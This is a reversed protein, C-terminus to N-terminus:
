KKKRIIVGLAIMLPSAIIATATSSFSFEDLYGAGSITANDVYANGTADGIYIHFEVTDVVPDHFPVLLNATIEEWQGTTTGHSQGSNGAHTAGAYFYIFVQLNFDIDQWVWLSFSAAEGPTFTGTQTQVLRGYQGNDTSNYKACYGVTMTTDNNFDGSGTETWDDPSGGSWNEFSPNILSIDSPKAGVGFTSLILLIIATGILIRRMKDGQFKM